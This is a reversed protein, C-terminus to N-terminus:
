RSPGGRFGSPSVGYHRRFGREFASISGFGLQAAVEAIPLRGESLLETAAATRLRNRYTIIGVGMTASFRASLYNPSCGCRRAIENVSLSERFRADVLERARVAPDPAQLSASELLTVIRELAARVIVRYGTRPTSLEDRIRDVLATVEKSGHVRGGSVARHPRIISAAFLVVTKTARGPSEEVWQHPQDGALLIADGAALHFTGGAARYRTSGDRVLTLECVQHRHAGHARGILAHAERDFCRVPFAEPLDFEQRPYVPDPRVRGPDPDRTGDRDRLTRM